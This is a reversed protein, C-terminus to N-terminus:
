HAAPNAQADRVQDLVQECAVLNKRLVAIARRDISFAILGEESTELAIAVTGDPRALPSSGVVTLTRFKGSLRAM